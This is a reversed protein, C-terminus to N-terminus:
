ARRPLDREEPVRIRHLDLASRSPFGGRINEIPTSEDRLVRFGSEYCLLLTGRV